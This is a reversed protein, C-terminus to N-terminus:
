RVLVDQSPVRTTTFIMCWCFVHSKPPPSQLSFLNQLPVAFFLSIPSSDLLASMFWGWSGWFGCTCLCSLKIFSLVSKTASFTDLQHNDLMWGSTQGAASDAKRETHAQSNKKGVFGWRATVSQAMQRQNEWSTFVTVIAVEVRILRLLTLWDSDWGSGFWVSWSVDWRTM